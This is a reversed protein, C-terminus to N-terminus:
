MQRTKTELNKGLLPDMRWMIFTLRSLETLMVVPSRDPGCIFLPEIGQLPLLNETRYLMWVRGPALRVKYETHPHKNGTRRTGDPTRNAVADLATGLGM